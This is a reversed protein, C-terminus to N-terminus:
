DTTISKRKLTKKKEAELRKLLPSGQKMDEEIKDVILNALLQLRQKKTLNFVDEIDSSM